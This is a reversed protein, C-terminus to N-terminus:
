QLVKAPHMLESIQTKLLQAAEQILRRRHRRNKVHTLALQLEAQADATLRLAQAAVAPSCHGHIAIREIMTDAKTM